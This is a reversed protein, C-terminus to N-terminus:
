SPQRLGSGSLRRCAGLDIRVWRRGPESNRGRLVRTDRKYWSTNDSSTAIKMVVAPFEAALLMSFPRICARLRTPLLNFPVERARGARHATYAARSSCLTPMSTGLTFM